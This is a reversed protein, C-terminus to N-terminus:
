RAGVRDAELLLIRGAAASEAAFLQAGGDAHYLSGGGISARPSLRYNPYAFLSSHTGDSEPTPNSEEAGLFRNIAAGFALRRLSPFLRFKVRRECLMLNRDGINRGNYNPFACTKWEARLLAGQERRCSRDRARDPHCPWPRGPVPRSACDRRRGSLAADPDRM